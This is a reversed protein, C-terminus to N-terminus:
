LNEQASVSGFRFLGEASELSALYEGVIKAACMVLEACPRKRYYEPTRESPEPTEKKVPLGLLDRCVIHGNETRFKEAFDQILSYVAKKSTRDAPDTYPSILGALVAMGSVTGCVERLRGMGGGLAASLAAAAKEDLSFLDCYALVVSQTCNYGAHFFDAARSVRKEVDIEM